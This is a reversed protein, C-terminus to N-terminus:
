RGTDHGRHSAREVAALLDEISFPKALCADARMEACIREARYAATMAVIQIDQIHEGRLRQAIEVGTMGPLQYDLIAIDPRHQEIKQLTDEDEGLSQVVRFGEDAGV